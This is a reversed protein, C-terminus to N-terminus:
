RRAARVVEPGGRLEGCEAGILPLSPALATLLSLLTLVSLTVPLVSLILTDFGVPAFLPTFIYVHIHVPMHMCKYVCADM